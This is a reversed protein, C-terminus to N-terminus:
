ATVYGPRRYIEEVVELAARTDELAPDREGGARIDEVFTAFELAWSQDGASVGLGDAAHVGDRWQPVALTAQRLVSDVHARDGDDVPTDSTIGVVAAGVAAAVDTTFSPKWASLGGTIPDALYPATMSGLHWLGLVSVKM